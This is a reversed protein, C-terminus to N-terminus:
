VFCDQCVEKSNSISLMWFSAITSSQRLKVVDFVSCDQSFECFQIQCYSFHLLEALSGEFIFAAHQASPMTGTRKAINGSWRDLINRRGPFLSALVHSTICRVPFIMKWVSSRIRWFTVGRLFDTGLGGLMDSSCTEQVLLAGSRELDEEFAGRRGDSKFVSRSLVFAERKSRTSM